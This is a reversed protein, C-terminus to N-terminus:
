MSRGVVPVYLEVTLTQSDDSGSGRKPKVGKIVPCALMEKYVHGYVEQIKSALEIMDDIKEHATHGEQWLFEKSRIFPVYPPKVWRVANSWQNVM